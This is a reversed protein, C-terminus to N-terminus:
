TVCCTYMNYVIGPCVSYGAWKPPVGPLQHSLCVVLLLGCDKWMLVLEGVGPDMNIRVVNNTGYTPTILNSYFPFSYRILEYKTIM